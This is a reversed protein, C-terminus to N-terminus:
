KLYCLVFMGPIVKYFMKRNARNIEESVRESPSLLFRYFIISFRYTQLSLNLYKLYICGLQLFTLVNGTGSKNFVFNGLSFGLLFPINAGDNKGWGSNRFYEERQIFFSLLWRLKDAYLIGHLQWSMGCFTSLHKQIKKKM